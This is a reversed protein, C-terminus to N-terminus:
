EVAVLPGTGRSHRPANGQQVAPCGRGLLCLIGHPVVGGAVAADGAVAPREQRESEIM